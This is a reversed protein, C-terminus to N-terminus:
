LPNITWDGVIVLKGLLLNLRDENKIEGLTPASRFVWASGDMVDIDYLTASEKGFNGAPLTNDARICTHKYRGDNHRAECLLVELNDNDTAYDRLKTVRM